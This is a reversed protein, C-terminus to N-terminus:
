VQEFEERDYLNYLPQLAEYRPLGLAESVALAAKLKNVDHNSIGIARVKGEKILDAFASLTEQLEVEPDEYHAQYLDIYDTQLRQLSREVARKIHKASLGREGAPLEGGVKTAILVDHRRG